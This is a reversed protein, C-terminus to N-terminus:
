VIVGAELEVTETTPAFPEQVAEVVADTVTPEANDILILLGM